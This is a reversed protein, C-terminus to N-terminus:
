DRVVRRVLLERREGPRDGRTWAPGLIAEPRMADVQALTGFWLFGLGRGAAAEAAAGMLRAMREPTSALTLVRLARLGFREAPGGSRWWAVYGAYKERMRDLPVSGMDIEVLLADTRGGQRLVAFADAVLPIRQLTGREPLHAAFGLTARRTVWRELTLLGRADLQELVVGLENRELDHALTHLGRTRRPLRGPTALGARQLVLLGAATLFFADREDTARFPTSNLSALLGGERLAVLAQTVADVDEDVLALAAVQHPLLVQHRHIAALGALLWPPRRSLLCDQFPM